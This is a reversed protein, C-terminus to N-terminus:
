SFRQSKNDSLIFKMGFSSQTYNSKKKKKIKYKTLNYHVWIINKLNSILQYIKNTTRGVYQNHLKYIKITYTVGVTEKKIKQPKPEQKALLPRSLM